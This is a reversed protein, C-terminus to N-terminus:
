KEFPNEDQCMPIYEFYNPAPHSSMNVWERRCNVSEKARAPVIIKLNQVYFGNQQLNMSFDPAYIIEIKFFIFLNKSEVDFHYTNSEIKQIQEEAFGVSSLSAILYLLKEDYIDDRNQL